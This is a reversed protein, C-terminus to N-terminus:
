ISPSMKKTVHTNKVNITRAGTTDLANLLQDKDFDDFCFDDFLIIQHEKTLNKFDERHTVILMKLNLVHKLMYAFATKGTDGIGFLILTPQCDNKFWMKIVEPLNFQDKNTFPPIEDEVISKLELKQKHNFMKELRQYSSGGAARIPHNEIYMLKAKDLGATEAMKMFQVHYTLLKGDIIDSIDTDYNNDKCIYKIVRKYYKATEYHGHYTKEKYQLDLQTPNRIDFKNRAVFLVHFYVGQDGHNEQGILYNEFDIVQSLSRLVDQKSMEESVQSYTLFLRRAALRVPKEETDKELAEITKEQLEISTDLLDSASPIELM